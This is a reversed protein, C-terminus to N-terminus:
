KDKIFTVATRQIRREIVNSVHTFLKMKFGLGVIGVFILCGIVTGIIWNWNQNRLTIGPNSENEVLKATLAELLEVEDLSPCNKNNDLMKRVNPCECQTGNSRNTQHLMLSTGNPVKGSMDEMLLRDGNDLFKLRLKEGAPSPCTRGDVLIANKQICSISQIDGFVEFTPVYELLLISFGHTKCYFYFYLNTASSTEWVLDLCNKDPSANLLKFLHESNNINLVTQELSLFLSRRNNFREFLPRSCNTSTSISCDSLVCSNASTLSVAWFTLVVFISAFM